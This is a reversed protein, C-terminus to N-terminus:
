RRSPHSVMPRKNSIYLHKLSVPQRWTPRVNFFSDMRRPCSAANSPSCKGVNWLVTTREDEFTQISVLCRSGQIHHGTIRWILFWEGLVTADCRQLVESRCWAATFMEFSARYWWNKPLLSSWFMNKMIAATLLGFGVTKM